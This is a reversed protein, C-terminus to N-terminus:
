TVSGSPYACCLIVYSCCLFPLASFMVCLRSVVNVLLESLDAAYVVHTEMILSLCLDSTVWPRRESDPAGEGVKVAKSSLKLCVIRIFVSLRSILGM